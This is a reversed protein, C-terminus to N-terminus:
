VTGNAVASTEDATSEQKSLGPLAIMKVAEEPEKILGVTFPDDCVVPLPPGWDEDAGGTFWEGPSDGDTLPAGINGIIDPATFRVSSWAHSGVAQSTSSSQDSLYAERLGFMFRSLLINQMIDEILALGGATGTPVSSEYVTVTGVINLVIIAGFYLTGDRLLLTSLRIPIEADAAAKHLKYTRMWTLAVVIINQAIICVSTTTRLSSQIAVVFPLPNTWCGDVIPALSYVTAPIDVLMNVTVVVLGLFMVLVFCIWSRGWIAYVRLAPLSTITLALLGNVISMFTGQQVCSEHQNLAPIPSASMMNLMLLLFPLYRNLILLISVGTFRRHWIFEIEQPFMIIYEYTYLALCAVYFYEIEITSIILEVAVAAPISDAM